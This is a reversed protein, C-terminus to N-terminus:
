FITGAHGGEGGTIRQLHGEALESRLTSISSERDLKDWDKMGSRKSEQIQMAQDFLRTKDLELQALRKETSFEMYPPFAKGGPIISCLGALYNTLRQARSYSTNATNSQRHFTHQHIETGPGPSTLSSGRSVSPNCQAVAPLTGRRSTAGSWSNDRTSLGGRPRTPASLLSINPGRNQSPLSKPVSSPGSPPAHNLSASYAKPQTPISSTPQANNVVHQNATSWSVDNNEQDPEKGVSLAPREETPTSPKYKAQFMRERAPSLRSSTKQFREHPTNEIAPSQSRKESPALSTKENFPSPRRSNADSVPTSFNGSSTNKSPSISRRKLTSEQQRERHGQFPSRARFAVSSRPGNERFAGRRPSSDARPYRDSISPTFRERKSFRFDQNPPSSDRPRIPTTRSWETDRSRGESYPSRSRWTM